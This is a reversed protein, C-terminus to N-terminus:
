EWFSPELEDGLAYGGDKEIIERVVVGVIDTKSSTKVDLGSDRRKAGQGEHGVERRVEYNGAGVDVLTARKYSANTVERLAVVFGAEKNEKLWEQAKADKLVKKLAADADKLLRVHQSEAEITGVETGEELQKQVFYTGGLSELFRDSTSDFVIVDKYWRTGVDDYDRDELSSPNYKSTKSVLQGVPIATNNLPKPLLALDPIISPSLPAEASSRRRTFNM